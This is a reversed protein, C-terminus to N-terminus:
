YYARGGHRTRSSSRQPADSRNSPQHHQGASRDDAMFSRDTTFPPKWPAPAGDVPTAGHPEIRSMMANTSRTTTALTRQQSELSKSAGASSILSSLLTRTQVISYRFFIIADVTPILKGITITIFQISPLTPAFFSLQLCLTYSFAIVVAPIYPALVELKVSRPLIIDGHAKVQAMILVKVFLYDTCLSLITTTTFAIFSILRDRGRLTIVEPPAQGRPAVSASAEAIHVHFSAIIASLNVIAVVASAALFIRRATERRLPAVIRLRYFRCITICIYASRGFLDGISTM